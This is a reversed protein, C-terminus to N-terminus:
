FGSAGKLMSPRETQFSESCELDGGARASILFASLNGSLNIILFPDPPQAHAFSLGHPEMGSPNPALGQCLDFVWGKGAPSMQAIEVAATGKQPLRPQPCCFGRLQRPGPCWLPWPASAPVPLRLSQMGFATRGILGLVECAFNSTLKQSVIGIM